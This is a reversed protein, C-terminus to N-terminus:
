TASTEAITATSRYSRSSSQSDTSTSRRSPCISMNCAFPATACSAVSRKVEDHPTKKDGIVIASTNKLHGYKEFNDVYEELLTPVNITTIVLTMHPKSM